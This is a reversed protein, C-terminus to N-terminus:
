RDGGRRRGVQGARRRRRFGLRLDGDLAARQIRLGPSNPDIRAALELLEGARQRAEQPPIATWTGAASYCDALCVLNPTFHPDWARARELLVIAQRMRGASRHRLLNRAELYAEVVRPETPGWAPIRTPMAPRSGPVAVLVPITLRYGVGYVTAIPSVGLPDRGLQRRLTRVCRVLSEDGMARAGWGARILDDKTIVRGSAEVLAQLVAREKPRLAIERGNKLLRQDALLQFPGFSHTTYLDPANM